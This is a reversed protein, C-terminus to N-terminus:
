TLSLSFATASMKLFLKPKSQNKKGFACANLLSEDEAQTLRTTTACFDCSLTDSGEAPARFGANHRRCPGDLM